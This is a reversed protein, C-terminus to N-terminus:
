WSAVDCHESHREIKTWLSVILKNLQTKSDCLVLENDDKYSSRSTEFLNDEDEAAKQKQSFQLTINVGVWVASECENQELSSSSNGLLALCM